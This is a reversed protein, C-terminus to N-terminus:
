EPEEETSLISPLHFQELYADFVDRNILVTTQDIRYLAGAKTAHEFLLKHSLGYVIEAEKYRLFRRRVRRANEVVDSKKSLDYTSKTKGSIM